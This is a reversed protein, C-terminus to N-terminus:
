ANLCVNKSLWGYRIIKPPQSTVKRRIYIPLQCVGCVVTFSDGKVITEGKHFRLVVLDGNNKIEGLINITGNQECNPCVIFNKKM